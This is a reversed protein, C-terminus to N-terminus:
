EHDPPKPNLVEELKCELEYAKDATLDIRVLPQAAPILPPAMLDQPFSFHVSFGETKNGTIFM